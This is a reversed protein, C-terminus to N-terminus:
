NSYRFSIKHDESPKLDVFHELSYLYLILNYLDDNDRSYTGQVEISDDPTKIFLRLDSVDPPSPSLAFNDPSISNIRAMLQSFDESTLKYRSLGLHSCFSYGYHYLLSDSGIILSQVPCEGFCFGSYFELRVLTYNNKQTRIIKNFFLTDNWKPFVRSITLRTSDLDIIKFKFGFLTDKDNNKLPTYIILTDCLTKYSVVPDVSCTINELMLSDRISMRFIQESKNKYSVWDGKLLENNISKQENNCSVILVLAGLCICIFLLSQRMEM